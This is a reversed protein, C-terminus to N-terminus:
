NLSGLPKHKVINEFYRTATMNGNIIEGIPMMKDDIYKMAMVAKRWDQKTNIVYQAEELMLSAEYITILFEAIKRAEVQGAVFPNQSGIIKGMGTYASQIAAGVIDSYPKLREDTVKGLNIGADELLADITQDRVHSKLVELAQIDNTGEYIRTIVAERLRQEIGNEKIYGHGGFNDIARAAIFVSLESGRYKALPTMIRVLRQYREFEAKDAGILDEEAKGKLAFFKDIMEYAKFVFSTAAEIQIRMNVLHEQMLPHNELAQGFQVREACYSESQLLAREAIGLGQTGVGLRSRNMLYLMHAFGKEEQGVLYAEAGEFTTAGTPSSNIGMKEELRTVYVNNRKGDKLHKPVLFLSLGNTGQKAGETRALVIFVDADPNSIFIKEGHVSYHNNVKKAITKIAGVDSGAQSETLVMAGSYAEEPKTSILKPIFEKKLDESGFRFITEAVGATLGPITYVATDAQFMMYALAGDVMQPLGAGGLENPLTIGILGQERLRRLTENAGDPLVVRSIKPSTSLDWELRSREKENDHARPAFEKGALEGAMRLIDDITRLQDPYKEFSRNILFRLHLNSDWYNIIPDFAPM